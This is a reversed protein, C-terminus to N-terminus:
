VALDSPKKHSDEWLRGLPFNEYISLSIAILQSYAMKKTFVQSLLQM